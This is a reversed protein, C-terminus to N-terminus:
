WPHQTKLISSIWNKCSSLAEEESKNFSNYDKWEGNHITIALISVNLKEETGDSVFIRFIAHPNDKVEFYLKEKIDKIM